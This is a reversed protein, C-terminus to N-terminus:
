IVLNTRRQLKKCNRSENKGLIFFVCCFYRYENLAALDDDSM